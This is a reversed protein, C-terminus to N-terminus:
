LWSEETFRRLALKAARRERKHGAHHEASGQCMECSCSTFPNTKSRANSKIWAEGMRRATGKWREKIARIRAQIVRWRQHRREPLTM